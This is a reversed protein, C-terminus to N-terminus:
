DYEQNRLVSEVVLSEVLENGARPVSKFHSSDGIEFPIFVQRNFWNEM